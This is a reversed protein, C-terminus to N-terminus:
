EIISLAAVGFALQSFTQSWDLFGRLASPRFTKEPIVITDGPYIPVDTFRKSNWASKSKEQAIVEGNARIVFEHGRDADRNPGGAQQLYNGVRQANVFLFSNQDYVAGVVNVTAPIPPIIFHDGDELAVDPVEDVGKSEPSFRLVVRGTARIQRLSTILDQEAAQSAAGSAVDQASSVPSAMVALSARQISMGLSQVYEDIRAQQVARTSERTFESGYLYASPTLGGAREVLHRLTEGPGVTYVGAHVFEGGLTVFKTQQAIPVRIDAESFISVVDGAQLELNQSEDHQLVLKGLDFPVLVTKLTEADLREIVAYQWDIEPALAKVETKPHMAQLRASATGQEALSSSSARQNATLPSTQSAGPQGQQANYQGQQLAGQGQQTSDQGQQSYDDQGQELDDQGQPYVNQGLLANGPTLSQQGGSQGLRNASNIPSTYGLPNSSNLNISRSETPQRLSEFGPMPEFEPAALGLQSRKWWYNRTILSEKDPILDRVRMGPHWAFRGPNSTNGRLTVTKRYVPVISFIRVLDGDALPTALGAADYNVEMAQRDRHEDIREISIRAKAAVASVGGASVIVGDLTEGPLLEYVAPKRVSGIVAVQPGVAPIFIVDGNQLKVDKSKDGHVLLNYLDFDTVIESGRRLEIHRMSGQISPGGGAFLADVLTSLSSVTYVGPRRAQGSLYVQISKIEGMDATLDFNRYVRGVASRLHSDLESFALGAVHVPGVQPLFIEGSRDVRLNNQFNVQGWVRIRLEDGPGVVYDPPVPTMNLPAFTSPVRRFLDAGFIPLIQGSTSVVFKQFETLPEPVIPIQQQQTTNGSFQRYLDSYNTAGPLTAGNMGNLNNGNLSNGNSGGAQPINGGGQTSNNQLGQYISTGFPSTGQQSQGSCAVTDALQPDTCDQAGARPGVLLVSTLFCILILFRIPMTVRHFQAARRPTPATSCDGRGGGYQLANM